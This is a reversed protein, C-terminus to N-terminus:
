ATLKHEETRNLLERYVHLYALTSVPITILLGLLFPIAGVINLVIMVILLGLLKWRVGAAMRESRRFAEKVTVYEDIVIVPAFGYTVLVYFGPVILLVFGIGIFLGLLIGTLFYKIFLKSHAYLERMTAPEDDELKITMKLYGIKVIISIIIIAAWVILSSFGHKNFSGRTINLLAGAVMLVFTAGVLLKKNTKFIGWGHSMAARISFTKM